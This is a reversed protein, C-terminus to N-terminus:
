NVSHAHFSLLGIAFSGTVVIIDNNDLYFTYGDETRECTVITRGEVAEGFASEESLTEQRRFLACTRM